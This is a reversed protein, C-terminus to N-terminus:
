RTKPCKGGEHETPLFGAGLYTGKGCLKCTGNWASSKPQSVTSGDGAKVVLCIQDSFRHDIDGTTFILEHSAHKVPGIKAIIYSGSWIMWKDSEDSRCAVIRDGVLLEPPSVEILGATSKLYDPPPVHEIRM